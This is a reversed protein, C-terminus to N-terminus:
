DRYIILLEKGINNAGGAIKQKILETLSHHPKFAQLAMLEPSIFQYAMSWKAFARENIPGDYLKNVNFHRKDAKITEFLPLVEERPGELVQMFTASDYTLMGTIDSLANRRRSVHLIAELTEDTINVHTKSVYVLEILQNEM